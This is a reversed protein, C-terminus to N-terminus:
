HVLHRLAEVLRDLQERSHESFVAIRITGVGPADSYGRPPVYKVIIGKEKLKEQTRKLDLNGRPKLSIIPVPSDDVEFGLDRLRARLYAVNRRLRERLEPHEALIRIGEASAAAAPVPPPSAGVPIRVYRAIREMLAEDGPIIGGFGGFAKSLTGALYCREGEIGWYELSGRGNGGLVGVGHSDDVCLIGGYPALVQAYEKLPAMAGTVPFVGDTITLPVEGPRLHRKLEDRLGEPNLHPFPHIPKGVSNIADFVSYHSVEDVFIRHYEGKLAHALTFNGLYGSVIYKAKPTGFFAAALEEVERLPPMDWGTAPGLGYKRAADCAARILREHGHLCYYSTGCFYDYEKGEIVMRPGLPSELMTEESYV